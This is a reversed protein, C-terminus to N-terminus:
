EIRPGDDGSIEVIVAPRIQKDAMTLITRHNHRVIAVADKGMSSEDIAKAAGDYRARRVYVVIPESITEEIADQDDVIAAIVEGGGLSSIGQQGQRIQIRISPDVDNSSSEIHSGVVM